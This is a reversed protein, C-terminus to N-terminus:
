IFRRKSSRTRSSAKAPWSDIANLFNDKQWPLSSCRSWEAFHAPTFGYITTIKKKKWKWNMLLVTDNTVYFSNMLKVNEMLARTCPFNTCYVWNVEVHVYTGASHWRLIHRSLAFVLVPRRILELERCTIFSPCPSLVYAILYFVRDSRLLAIVCCDNFTWSSPLSGLTWYIITPFITFDM